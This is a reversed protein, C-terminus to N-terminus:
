QQELMAVRHVSLQQTFEEIVFINIITAPFYYMCMPPARLWLNIAAFLSKERSAPMINERVQVQLSNPRPAPAAAPSLVLVLMVYDIGGPLGSLFFCGLNNAVGM